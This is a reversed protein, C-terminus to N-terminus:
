QLQRITFIPHAFYLLLILLSTFISYLLLLVIWIFGHAYKMPYVPDCIGYTVM